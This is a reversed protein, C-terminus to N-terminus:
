SGKTVVIEIGLLFKNEKVTMKMNYCEEVYEVVRQQADELKKQAVAREGALEELRKNIETVPEKLKTAKRDQEAIKDDNRKIYGALGKEMKIMSKLEGTEIKSIISHTAAIAKVRVKEDLRIKNQSIMRELSRVKDSFKDFNELLEENNKLLGTLTNSDFRFEYDYKESVKGNIPNFLTVISEQVGTLRQAAVARQKSIRGVNIKIQEIEKSDFNNAEGKMRNISDLIESYIMHRGKVTKVLKDLEKKTNVKENWADAFNNFCEQFEVMTDEFKTPFEESVTGKGGKVKLINERFKRIQIKKSSIKEAPSYEKKDIDSIATFYEECSNQLNLIWGPFVYDRRAANDSRIQGQALEHISKVCNGFIQVSLDLKEDFGNRISGYKSVKFPLMEIGSPAFVLVEERLTITNEVELPKKKGFNRIKDFM